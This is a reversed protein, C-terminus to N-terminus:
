IVVIIFAVDIDLSGLEALTAFRFISKYKRSWIIEGAVDKLIQM